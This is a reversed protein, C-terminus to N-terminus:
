AEEIINTEHKAEEFEDSCGKLKKVIRDLVIGGNELWNRRRGTVVKEGPM